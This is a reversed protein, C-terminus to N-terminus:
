KHRKCENRTDLFMCPHTSLLDVIQTNPTITQKQDLFPFAYIRFDYVSHIFQASFAPKTFIPTMALFRIRVARIM